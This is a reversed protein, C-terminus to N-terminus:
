QVSKDMLGQAEALGFDRQAKDLEGLEAYAAGRELYTWYIYEAPIELGLAVNYDKVAKRHDGKARHFNGRYLYALAFEPNLNIAKDYDTIGLDDNGITIHATGRFFYALFYFDCTYLPVRIVETYEEIAKDFKGEIFYFNGQDFSDWTRNVVSDYHWASIVTLAVGIAAVALPRWISNGLQPSEVRQGASEGSGGGTAVNGNRSARRRFTNVALRILGIGICLIGLIFVLALIIELKYEM